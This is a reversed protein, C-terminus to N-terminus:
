QKVTEWISRMEETTAEPGSGVDSKRPTMAMEEVFQRPSYRRSTSGGETYHTEDDASNLDDARDQRRKAAYDRVSSNVGHAIDNVNGKGDCNDKLETYGRIGIEKTPGFQHHGTIPNLHLPRSGEALQVPSFWTKRHPEDAIHRNDFKKPLVLPFPPRTPRHLTFRSNSSENPTWIPSTRTDFGSSITDQDGTRRVKINAPYIPPPFQLTLTAIEGENLDYEHSPKIPSGYDSESSHRQNALDAESASSEVSARKAFISAIRARLTTTNQTETTSLSESSLSSREPSHGPSRLDIEELTGLQAMDENEPVSRPDESRYETSFGQDHYLRLRDVQSVPRSANTLALDVESGNFEGGDASHLSLRPELDWVDENERQLYGSDNTEQPSPNKSFRYSFRSKSPSATAPTVMISPGSNPITLPARGSMGPTFPFSVRGRNQTIPDITDDNTKKEGARQELVRQKPSTSPRNYRRKIVTLVLAICMTALIALGIIIPTRWQNIVEAVETKSDTDQQSAKREVIRIVDGGVRVVHVAPTRRRHSALNFVFPSM